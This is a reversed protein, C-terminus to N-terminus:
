ARSSQTSAMVSALVPATESAGSTVWLKGSVDSCCPMSSANRPPGTIFTSISRPAQSGDGARQMRASTMGGRPRVDPDTRQGAPMELRDATVPAPALLVAVVCAPPRHPVLRLVRPHDGEGPGQRADTGPAYGTRPRPGPAEHYRVGM